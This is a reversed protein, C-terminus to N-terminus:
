GGPDFTGSVAPAAGPMAMLANRLSMCYERQRVVDPHDASAARARVMALNIQERQLRKLLAAARTGARARMERRARRRDGPRALVELEDPRLGVEGVESGLVERLWRHERARALRVMVALVILLPVGKVAAAIPIRVIDGFGAVRKPFLDLLPSNWLFHGAVGALCLGAATLWRRTRTAESRRSVFSGIGMGTLGTYLVHGYLGSSLVRVYFGALVDAPKGGFVSMFYFVDEVIAFGLGCVTRYVFGDLVDDM